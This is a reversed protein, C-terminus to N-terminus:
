FKFTEQKQKKAKGSEKAQAAKRKQQAAKQAVLDSFDQLVCPGAWCLSKLSM